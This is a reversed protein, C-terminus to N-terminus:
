GILKAGDAATYEIERTKITLAMARGRNNQFLM